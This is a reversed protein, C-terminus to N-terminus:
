QAQARPGMSPLLLIWWQSFGHVAVLSFGASAALLSFGAYCCVGLVALLLYFYLFQDKFFHSDSSIRLPFFILIYCM